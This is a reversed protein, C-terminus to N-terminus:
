YLILNWDNWPRNLGSVNRPITKRVADSYVDPRWNNIKGASSGRLNTERFYDALDRLSADNWALREILYALLAGIPQFSKPQTGTGFNASAYFTGVGWDNGLRERLGQGWGAETRTIASYTWSGVDALCVFDVLERPHKASDMGTELARDVNVAPKANAGTWAHSHALVGYIIGSRLEKEPTGLRPKVLDKCAKARGFADSLHHARLTLKCELAAAVGAALWTKKARLREPYFPKLILVDIQPSKQGDAGIIRGKTVVHYQPPLWNRLLQAWNEEGEDGATGPDEVAGSFIRRYESAMDASVQSMFVHLDHQKDSM